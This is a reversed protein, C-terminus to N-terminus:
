LKKVGGAERHNSPPQINDRNRELVTKLEETRVPKSIYDDMSAELCRERDGQMAEATMAIIRPARGHPFRRKRIQRAAEYGDMEPMQCDMLIIPYPFRELAELVEKGNAAVEASYGLKQLQRLAVKQNVPNDEAILIRCTFPEQSDTEPAVPSQLPAEQIEPKEIKLVECLCRHLDSQRVPKLLCELVDDEGQQALSLKEEVSTLIIVRTSAISPDAKITKSLTLGDMEPMQFDIIALDFACENDAAQKLLHLAEEGNVAERHELNWAELQYHLIRRNTANDDVILIKRGSLIQADVRTSPSPIPNPCKNLPLQFWFNSGRNLESNFGVTGGMMEVLQKSIALGLGTGGHRRVTSSDLQNFAQFLKSQNEESIGTGTDMVEIRVTADSDSERECSVNVFVEGEDTFKIANGVMNLLVQRIRGPDGRFATHIELPIFAALELGKQCAREAMLEVTEEVVQRLNFDMSELSMKGAEIKSFDLIDNIITLLADGSNRVISAFEKQEGNLPTELLLNSMGIIGNMPTRIEHSMTALFASKARNACEAAEKAQHLMATQRAVRRRLSGIWALSLLILFVLGGTVATTRQPTWWSASQLVQVDETSRLLLQFFDPEDNAGIHVSCIGTVAIWSGPRVVNLQQRDNTRSLNANFTVGQNEIILRETQPDQISDLLRGEMRVLHMQCRFAEDQNSLVKGPEVSLPIVRRSAGTSRYIGDELSPVMPGLNPFGVAEVESGLPLNQTMSSQVRVAGTEDQIYLATGSEHLTVRGRVRVRHGLEENLDFEAIDSISTLPLAFPNRPAPQIIEVFSRNPLYVTIGTLQRHANFNSGCVGVLSVASDIWQWPVPNEVDVPLIAFFRGNITALTLVLHDGNKEIRRVIGTTEVWQSDHKGKLLEQLPLSLPPPPREHSLITIEPNEIQPAFLGPGTEGIVEVRDGTKLEVESSVENVFIGGTEDQVFYINWSKDAYTVLAHLRVPHGKQAEEETLSRIETVKRIPRESLDGSAAKKEPLTHPGAIMRYKVDRLANGTERRELFGEVEIKDGPFIPPERQSCKVVVTATSDKLTISEGWVLDVVIGAIKM